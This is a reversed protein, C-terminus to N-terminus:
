IYCVVWDKRCIAIFFGIIIVLRGQTDRSALLGLHFLLGPFHLSKLLTCRNFLVVHGPMYSLGEKKPAGYLDLSNSGGAVTFGWRM